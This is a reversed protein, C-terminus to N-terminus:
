PGNDRGGVGGGWVRLRMGSTLAKGCGLLLPSPAQSWHAQAAQLPRSAPGLAPSGVGAKRGRPSSGWGPTLLAPRARAAGPAPPCDVARDLGRPRRAPGHTDACSTRSKSDTPLASRPPQGLFCARTGLQDLRQARHSSGATHGTGAAGPRHPRGAAKVAPTVGRGRPGPAPRLNPAVLRRRPPPGRRGPRRAPPSGQQSPPQRPRPPRTNAGRLLWSAAAEESDPRHGSEKGVLRSPLTPRQARGAQSPKLAAPPVRRGKMQLLALGSCLGPAQVRETFPVARSRSGNRPAPGGPLM